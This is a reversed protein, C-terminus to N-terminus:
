TAATREYRPMKAPKSRSNQTSTMRRPKGEDLSQRHHSARTSPAPSPIRDTFKRILVADRADARSAERAVLVHSCEKRVDRREEHKERRKLRLHPETKVSPSKQPAKQSLPTEATVTLVGWPYPMKGQAATEISDLYLVKSITTAQLGAKTRKTSGKKSQASNM